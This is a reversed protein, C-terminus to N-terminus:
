GTYITAPLATAKMVFPQYEMPHSSDAVSSSDGGWFLDIRGAQTTGAAFWLEESDGATGTVYWRHTHQVGDTEDAFMAHNEYKAGLTTFGTSADTTSLGFTVARQADTQVHISSLIEVNGSPPFVFSVKLDDHVPLMAATVDFTAPTEDLGIVTYGLIMGAYADAFKVGAKKMEFVGTTSDLTIDGDIDLLLDASIGVGDDVTTLTTAGNAFVRLSAYDTTSGALYFRTIGSNADLIIDEDADLTIDGSIPFTAVKNSIDGALVELDGRIRAGNDTNALELSSSEGGVKLPRLHSDVPHGEQLKVDNPM